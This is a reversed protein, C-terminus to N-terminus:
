VAYVTSAHASELMSGERDKISIIYKVVSLFAVGADTCPTPTSKKISISKAEGCRQSVHEYYFQAM